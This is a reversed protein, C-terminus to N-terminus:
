PAKAAKTEEALAAAGVGATLLGAAVGAILYIGAVVLGVSLLRLVGRFAAPSM